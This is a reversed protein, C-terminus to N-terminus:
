KGDVKKKEETSQKRTAEWQSEKGHFGPNKGNSGRIPVMCILISAFKAKKGKNATGM